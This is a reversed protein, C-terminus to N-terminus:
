RHAGRFSVLTASSARSTSHVRQWREAERLDERLGVLDRSQSVRGGSQSSRYRRLLIRCAHIYLKAKAVSEVEAYDANDDYQAEVEALTSTSSLAM